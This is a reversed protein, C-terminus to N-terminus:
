TWAVGPGTRGIGIWQRHAVGDDAACLQALVAETEDGGALLDLGVRGWYPNTMAQTSIAGVGARVHPCAAGVAPRCTTVAVGFMGAVDDRAVISWTGFFWPNYPQMRM